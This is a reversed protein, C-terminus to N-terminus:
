SVEGNHKNKYRSKRGNGNNLSMYSDTLSHCNPCILELNSELNNGSDGDIHNVQVPVNGTTTNIENWGCKCCRNNFKEKLYNRVYQSVIGNDSNGGEVLGAKWDSIFKSSRAKNSCKNSCYAQEHRELHIGCVACNRNHKPRAM